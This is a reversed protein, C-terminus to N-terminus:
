TTNECPELESPHMRCLRHAQLEPVYERGSAVWHNVSSRKINLACALKAQNGQYLSLAVNVSVAPDIVKKM